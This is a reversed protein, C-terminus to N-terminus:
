ALYATKLRGGRWDVGESDFVMRSARSKSDLVKEILGQPHGQRSFAAALFVNLFGHM